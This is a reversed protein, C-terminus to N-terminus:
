GGWTRTKPDLADRLGDGLLNISIVAVFIAIGPFVSMWWATMLYTRGANLMAGWEPSPPQAGLGIYSLGATVMIAGGLSLTSHIIIPAVVNPLIHRFMIRFDTAGIMRAATVYEFNRASLISGRVLRVYFPISSIGLAVLVTSIGPGLAAIICLLLLFTPFAMLIEVIRQILDDLWGGYYGSISGIFIGGSMGIAVALLAVRLSDRGGWLVRSLIDQGLNDTGFWHAQSPPQQIYDFDLFTPDYPSVYPALITMGILATLAGLGLMATPNRRLSRWALGWQSTGGAQQRPTSEAGRRVAVQLNTTM